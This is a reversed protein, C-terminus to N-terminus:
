LHRNRARRHPPPRRPRRPLNNSGHNSSLRSPHRYSTNLQEGRINLTCRNDPIGVQSRTQPSTYRPAPYRGTLRGSRLELLRGSSTDVGRTWGQSPACKMPSSTPHDTSKFAFLKNADMDPVTQHPILNCSLASRMGSMELRAQGGVCRDDRILKVRRV